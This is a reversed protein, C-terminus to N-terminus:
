GAALATLADGLRLPNRPVSLSAGSIVGLGAVPDFIANGGVKGALHRLTAIRRDIIIDVSHTAKELVHAADSSPYHQRGILTPPGDVFIMDPDVMPIDHYRLCTVGDILEAETWTLLFDVYPRLDPPMAFRTEDSFKSIHDVTVLRGTGIERMAHAMVITTTGTGFELVIQPRRKIIYNYLVYYDISGAGTTERGPPLRLKEILEGARTSLEQKRNFNIKRYNESGRPELALPRVNVAYNAFNVLKRIM